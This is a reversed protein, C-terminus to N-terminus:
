GKNSSMSTVKWTNDMKNKIVFKRNVYMLLFCPLIQSIQAVEIKTNVNFCLAFWLGLYTYLFRYEHMKSTRGKYDMMCALAEFLMSFVWPFIPFLGLGEIIIPCILPHDQLPGGLAYQNFFSQLKNADNTLSALGAYGSFLSNFITAVSIRSRYATLMEIGQAVSRPGSIYENSQQFILLLMQTWQNGNGQLLYGYKYFSISMMAIVACAFVAALISKPFPKFVDEFIEVSALVPLILNWRSLGVSYGIYLFLFFMAGFIWIKRKNRKYNQACYSYGLLLFGFRFALFILKFFSGSTANSGTSYDDSLVMFQSFIQRQFLLLMAFAVICFVSLVAKYRLFEPEVSTQLLKKRKIERKRVWETGFYLGVEAAFVETCMWLIAKTMSSAQPEVGFGNTGYATWGGYIETYLCALPLLLYRYFLVFQAIYYPFGRRYNCKAQIMPVFILYAVLYSIPLLFLFRYSESTNFISLILADIGCILILAFTKSFGLIRKNQIKVLSEM